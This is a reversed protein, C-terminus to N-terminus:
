SKNIWQNIHDKIFHICILAICFFVISEPKSILININYNSMILYTIIGGVIFGLYLIFLKQMIKIYSIYKFYIISLMISVSVVLLWIASTMFLINYGFLPLLYNTTILLLAPLFVGSSFLRRYVINLSNLNCVKSYNVVSFIFFLAVLPFILRHLRGYDILMGSDFLTSGKIFLATEIMNNTFITALVVCFISGMLAYEKKNFKTNSLDKFLIYMLLIGFLALGCIARLLSISHYHQISYLGLSYLLLEM